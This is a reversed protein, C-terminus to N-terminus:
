ISVHETGGVNQKTHFFFFFVKYYSTKSEYLNLNNITLM